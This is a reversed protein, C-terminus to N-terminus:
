ANVPAEFHDPDDFFAECAQRSLKAEPSGFVLAKLTKLLLKTGRKDYKAMQRATSLDIVKKQISPGADAHPAQSEPFIELREFRGTSPHFFYEAILGRKEPDPIRISSIKRAIDESEEELFEKGKFLRDEMAAFFWDPDSLVIQPLTKKRIEEFTVTTWPM